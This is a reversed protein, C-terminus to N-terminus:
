QLAESLPCVYSLVGNDYRYLQVNGEQDVVELLNAYEPRINAILGAYSSATGEAIADIDDRQVVGDYTDYVILHNQNNRNQWLLVEMVGDEDLDHLEM